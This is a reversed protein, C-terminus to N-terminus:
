FTNQAGLFKRLAIGIKELRAHGMDINKLMKISNEM